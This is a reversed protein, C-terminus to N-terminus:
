HRQPSYPEQGRRAAILARNAYAYVVSATFGAEALLALHVSVPLPTDGQQVLMADHAAMDAGEDPAFGHTRELRAWMARYADFLPPEVAMRDLNLLWGGPELLAAAAQYIAQHGERGLHHLAQVSFAIQYQQRPLPSDPGTLGAADSLDHRVQIFQYPFPRLHERALAIMAESRDIGVVQAHEVRKFLEVEVLASGSGLDLMTKGPEFVGDILSILADVTESRLPNYRGPDSTFRGALNPDRWDDM